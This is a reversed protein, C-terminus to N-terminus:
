GGPMSWVGTEDAWILLPKGDPALTIGSFAHVAETVLVLHTLQQTGIVTIACTVTEAPAALGYFSSNVLKLLRGTLAPAVAIVRAMDEATTEPDPLMECLCLYVQPPSVPVIDILDRPTIAM